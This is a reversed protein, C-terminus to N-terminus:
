PAAPDNSRRPGSVPATRPRPREVTPSGSASSPRSRRRCGEPDAVLRAYSFRLVVWGQTALASDRRLDSERAKRSGHFAAGDLEVIVRADPYAADVEVWRGGAVRIRYQQMGGRYPRRGPCSM